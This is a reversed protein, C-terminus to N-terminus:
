MLLVKVVWVAFGENHSTSPIYPTSILPVVVVTSIPAIVASLLSPEAKM